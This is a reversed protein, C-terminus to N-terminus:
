NSARCTIVSCLIKALRASVTQKGRENAHLVYDFMQDAPLFFPSPDSLPVAGGAVFWTAVTAYFSQYPATSYAPNGLMPTWAQLIHVGHARAWQFFRKLASPPENPDINWVPMPSATTLYHRNAATQYTSVQLTEDGFSSVTEPRFLDSTWPVRRVAITQLVRVPTLGFIIQIANPWSTHLLFRPDRFIVTDSLVDSPPASNTQALLQPEIALVAWDGRKLSREARYIIYEMGLGAHSGLNVAPWGTLRSIVEASYGFHTGSGGILVIKAGSVAAAAAEKRQYVGSIWEVAFPPQILRPLGIDWVATAAVALCLVTIILKSIAM